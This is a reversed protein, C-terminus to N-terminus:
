WGLHVLGAHLAAALALVLLPPARLLLLAALSTLAVAGDPWGHLTARGLSLLAAMVVGVVVPALAALVARVRESSRFAEISRAALVTGVFGPLFVAATALLAGATRAVRFGVFAATIAIPGPTIQGLTVADTFERPTLWHLREVLQHDIIPIMALGGGFAAAGIKLFVWALRPIAGMDFPLAVLAPPPRDRRSRWTSVMLAIVVAALIAEFVDLVTTEIAVVTAAAVVLQWPKRSEKALKWAVTAIVAVIAPNIGAFIAAVASLSKLRDYFVGFLIMLLTSPALFAATALAAGAVGRARMGLLTFFNAGVAGPLSQAISVMEAYEHADVWRRRRVISAEMQAIVAYGGGFGVMGLWLALPAM